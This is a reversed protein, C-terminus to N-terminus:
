FINKETLKQFIFTNETRIGVPQSIEIPFIFKWDRFANPKTTCLTHVSMVELFSVVCSSAPQRLILLNLLELFTKKSTELITIMAILKMKYCVSRQLRAAVM